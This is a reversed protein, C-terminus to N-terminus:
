KLELMNLSLNITFKLKLCFCMKLFMNNLVDVFKLESAEHLTYYMRGIEQM